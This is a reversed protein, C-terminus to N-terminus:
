RGERLATIPDLRAAQTAPWVGFFVGTAVTVAVAVLLAIPTIVPDPVQAEDPLRALYRCALWAAGMGLVGGLLCIVVAETLFQSLIDRRRAGLAKRLGVEATRERVTVLMINMVGVGGILLSLAGIIKLLTAFSNATQEREEFFTMTGWIGIPSKDDDYIDDPVVINPYRQHLLERIQRKALDLHDVSVAEVRIESPESVLQSRVAATEWPIYIGNDYWRHGKSRLVGVIRYRKGDMNLYEGVAEGGSFLEQHPQSGIVCVREQRQNEEYSFTRGQIFKDGLMEFYDPETAKVQANDFTTTNHSISNIWVWAVPVSNAIASCEERAAIVDDYSLQIQRPVTLNDRWEWYRFRVSMQKMGWGEFQALLDRKQGEGYALMVIVSGVGVIIGLMTLLTRMRRSALARM